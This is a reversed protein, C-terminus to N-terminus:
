ADLQRKRAEVVDVVRQSSRRQAELEIRRGGLHGFAEAADGGREPAGLPNPDAGGLQRDQQDLVGGPGVLDQARERELGSLEVHERDEVVAGGVAPVDRPHPVCVELQQRGRDGRDGAGAGTRGLQRQAQLVGANRHSRMRTTASRGVASSAARPSADSPGATRAESM